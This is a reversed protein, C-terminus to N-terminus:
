KAKTTKKKAERVSNKVYTGAEAPLLGLNYLISPIAIFKLNEQQKKSIKRKNGFSDEYVGDGYALGLIEVFEKGKTLPIGIQGLNELFPKRDTIGFFLKEDDGTTTSYFKNVASLTIDNMIDANVPSLFDSVLNGLRGKKINNLRKKRTKEDDDAGFSMLLSSIFYGMTHFIALQTSAGLLSNIARRKEAVSATKSFLTPIDTYIRLKLNMAHSAFPMYLQRIRNYRGGPEFFRGFMQSNSINQQLDVQADAYTVAEKDPKHTEWNISDVNVGKESLKQKYYTIFAVRAITQDPKVLLYKLGVDNIKKIVNPINRLDKVLELIESSNVFSELKSMDASSLGGRLAVSAGSKNIWNQIDKNWASALDIKGGSTILIDFTMPLMQKVPQFIGSLARAVGLNALFDVGKSFGSKQKEPLYVNKKTKNIFDIIRGELIKRISEDPILKKFDPSEVFGKVQNFAQATQVDMQASEMSRAMNSDFNFNVVRDKPLQQPKTSEFLVGAKKKGFVTGSFSALASQNDLEVEADAEFSSLKDPTYNVDNGLIQNYINYSTESLQPYVKAWENQWFAVADKNVQDFSNEIESSSEADKIKDYIEQLVEATEQQQTNGRRYKTISQKV